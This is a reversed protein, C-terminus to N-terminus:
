EPKLKGTEPKTMPKKGAVARNKRFVLFVVVGGAIAAMAAASWYNRVCDLVPILGGPRDPAFGRPLRMFELSQRAMWLRGIETAAKRGVAGLGVFAMESPRLIVWSGREAGLANAARSDEPLWFTSFNAACFQGVETDTGNGIRVLCETACVDAFNDATLELMTPLAWSHLLGRVATIATEVRRECVERRYAIWTPTLRIQFGHDFTKNHIIVAFSATSHHQGALHLFQLTPSDRVSQIIKPEGVRRSLFRTLRVTDGILEVHAQWHDVLFDLMEGDTRILRRLHDSVICGNEKKSYVVSPMRTVNLRRALNGHDACNIRALRVYWNIGKALHEFVNLYDDCQDCMVSSYVLILSEGPATFYDDFNSDTLLLTKPDVRVRSEHHFFRDRPTEFLDEEPPNVDGVTGFRDYLTKRDPDNLIEYAANMRVFEATTDKGPNKDPHLERTLARFRARIQETTSSHPLGLIKYPDDGHRLTSTVLAILFFLRM